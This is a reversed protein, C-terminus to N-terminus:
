IAFGEFFTQLNSGTVTKDGTGNVQIYVEFYDGSKAEFIDSVDVSFVGTGSIGTYKTTVATGNKRISVIAAAQDVIGATITLQAKLFYVGEPPKFRATATDFYGNDILAFGFTVLTDTASTVTQSNGSGGKVARFRPRAALSAPDLPIGSLSGAAAQKGSAFKPTQDPVAFFVKPDIIGSEQVTQYGLTNAHTGDGTLARGASTKWLGATTGTGELVLAVDFYGAYGTLGNRIATNVGTRATNSTADITQNVSTTWGDTSTTVPEITATWVRQTTFYGAITQLNAIITGSSDGALADNIGLHVLVDTCYQALVLRRTHSAVFESAAFGSRSVNIYACARSVCREAYGQDSAEGPTDGIGFERSDAVIFLTRKKTQAVIALPRYIAAAGNDPMADYTTSMTMDTIGVSNFACREGNTFDRQPTFVIGNASTAYTRVFFEAGDPIQIAVPESVIETFDSIAVSSAGGNFRVQKFQGEPYEISATVTITGGSPQEQTADVYYNGLVLQLLIIDDRAFHRSRSMIQKNTTSVSQSVGCRTAVQGLYLPIDGSPRLKGDEDIVLTQGLDSGSLPSATQPAAALGDELATGWERIEAKDPEYPSGMPGDPWIENATKVVM